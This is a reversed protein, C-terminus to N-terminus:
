NEVKKPCAMRLYAVLFVMNALFHLVLGIAIALMANGGVSYVGNKLLVVIAAALELWSFMVSAVRLLNIKYNVQAEEQEYSKRRRSENGIKKSSYVRLLVLLGFCVMGTITVPVYTSSESVAICESGSQYTGTPCSSLCEDKYLYYNDM